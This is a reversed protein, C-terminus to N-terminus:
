PKRDHKGPPDCDRPQRWAALIAAADAEGLAPANERDQAGRLQPALPPPLAPMEDGASAVRAAFLQRAEVHPASVAEDLGLVLACSVDRGDFRIRWGEATDSAILRAVADVTAQPDASDDRLAPPLGIVECFEQWFKEELPAAALFRGDSTRYIRYRPSGGTFIENGQEPAGAGAGMKGLAWWAWTFLNDSMSVDLHCGAGSLEATRLAMLIDIVAPLSGGGIDAILGQPLPPGDSPDGSLSLLGAAALYTLDHGARGAEPGHQGYGTISCYVLRPNKESLAEYGLGLRDMVGPRFQEVFIDANVALERATELDEPNKLDLTLSRKGRNLLAFAASSDGFAPPYHRMEDGIGPREVKVVEAGAEALILTALPGPLLTSCDLVRIGSLAARPSQAQM